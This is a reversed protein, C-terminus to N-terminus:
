NPFRPLRTLSKKLCRGVEVRVTFGYGFSKLRVIHRRLESHRHRVDDDDSLMRGVVWDSHIASFCILSSHFHNFVSFFSLLLLCLSLLLFLISYFVVSFSPPIILLHNHLCFWVGQLNHIWPRHQHPAYLSFFLWCVFTFRELTLRSHHLFTPVKIKIAVMM